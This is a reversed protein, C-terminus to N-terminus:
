FVGELPGQPAPLPQVPRPPPGLPIVGPAGADVPPLVQARQGRRLDEARQLLQDGHVIVQPVLTFNLTREDRIEGPVLNESVFDLPFVDYWPTALPQLITLTEFGDKVLRIQRTGYYIFDTSVPTTGIEHNDVYVLAGPPNSRVTLRRQVCGSTGLCLLVLVLGGATRWRAPLSARRITNCHQVNM